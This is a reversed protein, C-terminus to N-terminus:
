AYDNVWNMKGNTLRSAQNYVTENNDYKVEVGRSHVGYVYQGSFVPSGSQGPSTDVDYNFYDRSVNNIKGFARYMYYEGPYGAVEVKKNKLENDSIVTPKFYKKNKVPKELKLIAIDDDVNGNANYDAWIVYSVTHRDKINYKGNDAFIVDVSIARDGNDNLVNHASTLLTESNILFATGTYEADSYKMQVKAIGSYQGSKPNDVLEREDTGVVKFPTINNALYYKEDLTSNDYISDVEFLTSNRLDLINTVFTNEVKLNSDSDRSISNTTEYAKASSVLSFCVMLMTMTTLIFIKNRM